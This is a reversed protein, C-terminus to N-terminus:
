RDEFISFLVRSDRIFGWLIGLAGRQTSSLVLVNRIQWQPHHTPLAAHFAEGEDIVVDGSLILYHIIQGLERADLRAIQVHRRWRFVQRCELRRVQLQAKQDVVPDSKDAVAQLIIEPDDIQDDRGILDDVSHMEKVQGM